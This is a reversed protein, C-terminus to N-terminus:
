QAALRRELQAEFLSQPELTNAAGLGERWDEPATASAEAFLGGQDLGTVVDLDSGTGIVYGLGYQFSTVTGTGRLNWFVSGTATHGAGSSWTRRNVAKWADDTVSDDILNGMALSHHFESAGVTGFGGRGTLARGETSTTRLWVVGSTGFDWNQIFNHRGGTGVSDAFLIDSSRSVEYLYGNGGGGRNQPRALNCGQVTVRKSDLLKIGGSALHDGDTAPSPAEFSTLESVWADAVSQMLVAHSRDISWADAPEGATAVALSQIGVETLYGTVERLSAGDRTLADYRLPVDLTVSHPTSSVDVTVVERRFFARWQGNSVEWFADMEHETVFEPTITWGLDVQDGAELSSADSVRVVHSRNAGDAVLPLDAGASLAGSFTIHGRGTMGELRTFQIRSAEGVGVLVVGSATVTLLDDVRFTGAPFDVRGGAVGALDIAAQIATTSDTAGTPDAGQAVVDFSTWGSVDPLARESRGYGAYSFDHLFAGDSGSFTPEWDEPFLESRWSSPTTDDDDAADDDNAADDDDGSDDDDVAVDDDNAGSDDDNAPAGCGSLLAALALRVLARSIM